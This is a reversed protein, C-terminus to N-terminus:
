TAGQVAQLLLQQTIINTAFKRHYSPTAQM